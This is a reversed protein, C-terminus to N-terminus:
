GSLETSIMLGCHSSEIVVKGLYLGDGTGRRLYGNLNMALHNVKALFDNLRMKVERLYGFVVSGRVKAGELIISPLGQGCGCVKLWGGSFGLGNITPLELFRIPDIPLEHPVVDDRGGLM